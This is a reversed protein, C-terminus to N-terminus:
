HSNFWLLDRLFYKESKRSFVTLQVKQRMSIVIYYVFNIITKCFIMYRSDMLFTTKGASRNSTSIFIEPKEKDLDIMNMLKEGNYYPDVIKFNDYEEFM